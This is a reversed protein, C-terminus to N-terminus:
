SHQLQQQQVKGDPPDPICKRLISVDLLKDTGSDMTHVITNSHFYNKEKLITFQTSANYESKQILLFRVCREKM